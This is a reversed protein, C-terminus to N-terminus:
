KAANQMIEKETIVRFSFKYGEYVAIGYFLLDIVSFTEAMLEPVIGYNISSLTEFYGLGESNAVFGVISFFNGLLCGFLALVAGAIGFIKDMGKGTYRMAMGVFFGVALAMYGIQYGTSVTIVAWLLAGAVSAALGAIIGFLLNQELRLQELYRDLKEQDITQAQQQVPQEGTQEQPNEM